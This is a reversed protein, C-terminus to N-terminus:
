CCVWVREGNVLSLKRGPLTKSRGLHKRMQEYAENSTISRQSSVITEMTEKSILPRIPM